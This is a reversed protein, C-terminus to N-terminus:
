DIINHIHAVEVAVEAEPVLEEEVDPVQAAVVSVVDVEPLYAEVVVARQPAVGVVMEAGPVIEDEVDPVQAVVQEVM